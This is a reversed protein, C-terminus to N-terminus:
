ENNCRRIIPKVILEEVFFNMISICIAIILGSWFGYINFHDGLILDVIKLILFNIFPYFLGFTLATIPITLKFIIPRVTKNLVYIIVVALLEYWFNDVDFSNFIADVILFVLTYGLIYLVSDLFKHIRVSNKEKIVVKM